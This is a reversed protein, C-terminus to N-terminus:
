SAIVRSSRTSRTAFPRGRRAWSGIAGQGPMLLLSGPKDDPAYLPWSTYYTAGIAFTDLLWGSQYSVWGGLAWAASTTDDDNERDFFTRFHLKLSTDALFAPLRRRQEPLEPYGLEVLGTQPTPNSV